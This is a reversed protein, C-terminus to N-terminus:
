GWLKKIQEEQRMEWGAKIKIQTGKQSVLKTIAWIIMYKISSYFSNPMLYGVINSIGDFWVFVLSIKNSVLKAVAYILDNLETINGTPIYKM